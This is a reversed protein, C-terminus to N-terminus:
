IGMHDHSPPIPHSTLCVRGEVDKMAAVHGLSPKAAESWLGSGSLVGQGQVLGWGGPCSM